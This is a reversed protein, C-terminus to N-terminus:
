AIDQITSLEADIIKIMANTCYEIQQRYQIWSDLRKNGHFMNNRYRYIVYILFAIQDEGSVESIEKSLVSNAVQYDPDKHKLNRYKRKDQYREHFHLIEEELDGEADVEIEEIGHECVRTRRGREEDERGGHRGGEREGKKKERFRM